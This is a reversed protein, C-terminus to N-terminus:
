CLFNSKELCSLQKRLYIRNPEIMSTWYVISIDPIINFVKRADEIQGCKSYSDILSSGSFVENRNKGHDEEVNVLQLLLLFEVVVVLNVCHVFGILLLFFSLLLSLTSM